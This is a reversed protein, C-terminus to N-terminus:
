SSVKLIVKSLECITRKQLKSTHSNTLFVLLSIFPLCTKKKLEIVCIPDMSNEVFKPMGQSDNIGFKWVYGRSASIGM